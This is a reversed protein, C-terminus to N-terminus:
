NSGQEVELIVGDVGTVRVATGAPLNEGKIRWTTDDVRLVGINNIIPDELTFLRGVYQQGRRNLAPQDSVPPHTRQYHRFGSISIVSLGSFIMLQYQWGLDPSLLLLFGVVAAAIALWLFFFGPAMIEILLLLVGLIWWQWYDVDWVLSEM